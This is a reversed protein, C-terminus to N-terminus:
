LLSRNEVATMTSSSFHACIGVMCVACRCVAQYSVGKFSRIAELPVM